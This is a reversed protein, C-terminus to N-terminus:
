PTPYDNPMTVQYRVTDTRWDLGLRGKIDYRISKHMIWMDATLKDGGGLLRVDIWSDTQSNGRGQNEQEQTFLGRPTKIRTRLFISPTGEKTEGSDLRVVNPQWVVAEVPDFDAGSPRRPRM